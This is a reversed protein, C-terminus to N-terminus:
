SWWGTFTNRMRSDSMGQAPRHIANVMQLGRKSVMCECLSKVHVFRNTYPQSCMPLVITSSPCLELFACWNYLWIICICYLSDTIRSIVSESDVTYPVVHVATKRQCHHHHQILETLAIAHCTCLQLPGAENADEVASRCLGTYGASRRLAGEVCVAQTTNESIFACTQLKHLSWAGRLRMNEIFILVPKLKNGSKDVNSRAAFGLASIVGLVGPKVTQIGRSM